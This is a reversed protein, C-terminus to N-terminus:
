RILPRHLSQVLEISDLEGTWHACLAARNQEIFAAVAVFAKYSLAPGYVQRIPADSVLVTEGGCTTAVVFAATSSGDERIGCAAYINMGAALYCSSLRFCDLRGEADFLFAWQSPLVLEVTM